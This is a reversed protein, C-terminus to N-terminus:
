LLLFVKREGNQRSRRLYFSHYSGTRLRYKMHLTQSFIRRELLSILLKCIISKRSISNLIDFRTSHMMSQGCCCLFGSKAYSVHKRKQEWFGVLKKVRTQRDKCHNWSYLRRTRTTDPPPLSNETCGVDKQSSYLPPRPQLASLFFSTEVVISEPVPHHSSSQLSPFTSPSKESLNFDGERWPKFELM